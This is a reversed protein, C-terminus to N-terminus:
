FILIICVHDLNNETSGFCECEPFGCAFLKETLFTLDEFCEFCIFLSVFLVFLDM